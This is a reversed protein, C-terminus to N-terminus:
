ENVELSYGIGWVTKIYVPNAPNDELKKYIADLGRERM